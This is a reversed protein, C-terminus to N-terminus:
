NCDRISLVDHQQLLIRAFASSVIVTGCDSHRRNVEFCAAMYTSGITKIKEITRFFPLSLLQDFDCIIENLLQLCKLGQENLNNETYFSEAHALVPADDILPTHVLRQSPECSRASTRSVTTQFRHSCLQVPHTSYRLLLLLLLLPPWM